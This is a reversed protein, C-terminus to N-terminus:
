SLAKRVSQQYDYMRCPSKAYNSRLSILNGEGLHYTLESCSECAGTTCSLFDARAAQTLQEAELEFGM